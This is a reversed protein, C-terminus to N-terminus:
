GISKECLEFYKKTNRNSDTKAVELIRRDRRLLTLASAFRAKGEKSKFYKPFERYTKLQHWTTHAGGKAATVPDGSSVAIFVLSEVVDADERLQKEELEKQAECDVALPQLLGEDTWVLTVPADLKAALNSKEHTLSSKGDVSLLALRSRSSNHWATSGSYNNGVAYGRAAAKDIHALLLVAQKNISAMRGLMGKVFVRVEARDNENGSFADSANDIVVLDYSRTLKTLKEMAPTPELSRVGRTSRAVALTHDQNTGDLVTLNRIVESCDLNGSKLIKSLRVAVLAGDDELSAYLVKGKCVSLGAWAHGVAVHAAWSLALMSKGSGGHGGLLTVHGRPVITEILWHSAEDTPRGERTLDVVKSFPEKQGEAADLLAAAEDYSQM